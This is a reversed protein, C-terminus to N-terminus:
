DNAMSIDYFNSMPIYMEIVNSNAPAAFAYTKQKSYPGQSLSGGKASDLAPTTSGDGVTGCVVGWTINNLVTTTGSNNEWTHTIHMKCGTVVYKEYM